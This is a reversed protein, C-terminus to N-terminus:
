KNMVNEKAPHELSDNSVTEFATVIRKRWPRSTVKSSQSPLLERVKRALSRSRWSLSSARSNALINSRLAFHSAFLTLEKPRLRRECLTLWPSAHASRVRRRNFWPAWTKGNRADCPHSAQLTELSRSEDAKVQNRRAAMRHWSRDCDLTVSFSNHSAKATSGSNMRVWTRLVINCKPWCDPPAEEGLMAESKTSRLDKM